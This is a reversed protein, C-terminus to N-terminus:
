ADNEAAKKETWERVKNAQSVTLKLLAKVAEAETDCGGVDEGHVHTAALQLKDLVGARIAAKVLGEARTKAIKKEGTGASRSAGRAQEKAADEDTDPDFDTAGVYVEWGPGVRAFALKAANTYSGKYLNGVTSAQKVGGWAERVYLPVDKTGVGVLVRALVGDLQYETEDWWWAPTLVNDMRSIQVQVSSVGTSPYPKGTVVGTTKIFGQPIPKRLLPYLKLFLRLDLVTADGRLETAEDAIAQENVMAAALPTQEQEATSM